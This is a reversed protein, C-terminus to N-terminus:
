FTIIGRGPKGEALVVDAPVPFEREVQQEELEVFQEMRHAEYRVNRITLVVVAAISGIAVAAAIYALIRAPDGPPIPGGRVSSQNSTM